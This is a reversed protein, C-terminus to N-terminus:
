GEAEDAADAIAGDQAALFDVALGLSGYAARIQAENLTLTTQNAKDDYKRTVKGPVVLGLETIKVTM